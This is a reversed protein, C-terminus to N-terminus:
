AVIIPCRPLLLLADQCCFYPLQVDNHLIHKCNTVVIDFIYPTKVIHIVIKKKDPMVYRATRQQTEPLGQTHGSSIHDGVEVLGFLVDLHGPLVLLEHQGEKGAARVLLNKLGRQPLQGRVLPLPLAPGVEEGVEKEVALDVTM